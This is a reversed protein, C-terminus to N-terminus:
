ECYFVRTIHLRTNPVRDMYVRAYRTALSSYRTISLRALVICSLRRQRLATGYTHVHTHVYYACTQSRTFTFPQAINTAANIIVDM